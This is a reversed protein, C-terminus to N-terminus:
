LIHLHLMLSAELFSLFSFSIFPLLPHPSPVSSHFLVSLLNVSLFTLSEGSISLKTHLWGSYLRACVSVSRGEVCKTSPVSIDGRFQEWVQSGNGVKSIGSGKLM